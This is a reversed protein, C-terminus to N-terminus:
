GGLRALIEDKPGDMVIAGDDMVLLRDVIELISPKHTIVITTKGKTAENLNEIIKIETNYDMANTPEDLLVIPSKKIFARAVAISQRQGGSVHCGREGVQLDMGLPHRDTLANVAGFNVARIIEEDTAHPLSLIINDRVTGSFLSIEQPVFSYGQRLDVPDVQKIDLGDIFVAGNEAEYFGLLLNSITSKGSGVQGIIGVREGAKIKFNINRLAKKEEGPYSFDVQKFEINGDFGPRRIFRKGEPREEEKAMLENLSQLSIKMQQYNSLLTAAQSMPAITRTTLINVAILGGMTMLGETILYVGVIIVLVSSLQTLFGAVTSISSSQTRSKLGKSAILGTSEEWHWQLTSSANFAKITELNSLSEILISNRKNAAEHTSNVVKQISNKMPITFLFLICIISIPVFVLIPNISYIVLLFIFAFPIDIFATLATSTFFSRVADFDRINSAFSGVSGPKVAMKINMAHEFLKSSIIIDSKKSAQELLVTRLFKLIIDFAYILGIGIALVWLTDIAHHPIVRDYVNMTFLPGAVVFLNIFLSAFVVRMYIGKFRYMTSFFWNKTTGSGRDDLLNGQSFGQYLKKLFFVYGLYEEELKELAIERPSDDISPIIVVAQNEEPSIETLLCANDNKLTLIVPLVVPPITSLPRKQLSSKFGARGAARSFNSKSRHLTFLRRKEDASNFPLGEVLSEASAPKKDLKTLTVLCLLLPDDRFKEDM